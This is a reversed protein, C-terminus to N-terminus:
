AKEKGGAPEIGLSESTFLARFPVGAEGFSEAAGEQRDLVLLVSVTGAGADRLAQVAKLAAGATTAVDEILVVHEGPAMEGEIRKETGYGKSEKRVIVFPLGTELAVATALPVGGLEAGALRQVGKPLMAALERAVGKLLEPSTEFRYKDFYYNSKRGSRLTFEGRLLAVDRLQRALEEKGMRETVRAGAPRATDSLRAPNYGTGGAAM